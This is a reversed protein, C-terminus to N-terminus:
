LTKCTAIIQLIETSHVIVSGAAPGAPSREWVSGPSPLLRRAGGGPEAKPPEWCGSHNAKGTDACGSTYGSCSSDAGPGGPCARGWECKSRGAHSVTPRGYYHSQESSRTVTGAGARPWAPCTGPCGCIQTKQPILTRIKKKRLKRVKLDTGDM